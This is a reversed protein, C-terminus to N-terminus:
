ISYRFHSWIRSNYSLKAFKRLVDSTMTYAKMNKSCIEYLISFFPGLSPQEQLVKSLRALRTKQM